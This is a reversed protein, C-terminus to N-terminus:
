IYYELIHSWKCSFYFSVIKQYGSDCFLFAAICFLFFNYKLWEFEEWKPGVLTAYLFVICFANPKQISDIACAVHNLFMFEETPIAWRDSTYILM